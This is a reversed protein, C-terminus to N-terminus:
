ARKEIIAQARLFLELAYDSLMRAQGSPNNGAEATVYHRELIVALKFHALVVYYDLNTIPRGTASSYACALAERTPFHRYDHLSTPHHPRGEGSMPLIARGLDLLPDGITATEWDLLALVQRPRELSFIANSFGIDGHMLAPAAASPINERLWSAVFKLGPIARTLHDARERYSELLGMWRDVQRELFGDPKGFDSLGASEYDFTALGAAAEIVAFAM